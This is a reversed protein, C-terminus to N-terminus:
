RMDSQLAVTARFSAAACEDQPLLVTGHTSYRGSMHPSIAIAQEIRILAPATEGHAHDIM